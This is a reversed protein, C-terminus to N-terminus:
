EEIGGLYWRALIHLGLSVGICIAAGIVVIWASPTANGYAAAAVPAIAGVTIVAASLTNLYIATLKRRENRGSRNPEVM